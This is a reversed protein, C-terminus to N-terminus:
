ILFTFKKKHLRLYTIKNQITKYKNKARPMYFYSANKIITFDTLSKRVFNKYAGASRFKPLPLNRFLYTQAACGQCSKEFIYFIFTFYVLSLNKIPLNPTWFVRSLCNFIYIDACFAICFDILYYINLILFSNDAYNKGFLSNFYNKKRQTHTGTTREGQTM